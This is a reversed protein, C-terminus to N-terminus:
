PQTQLKPTGKEGCMKKVCGPGVREAKSLRERDADMVKNGQFARTTAEVIDKLNADMGDWDISYVSWLGDKSLKLIGADYFASLIRSAKSQSIDLAQMVECVCCERELLLNLVRLRSEDSLVKYAKVLERM